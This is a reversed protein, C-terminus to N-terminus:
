RKRDERLNQRGRPSAVVFVMRTLRLSAIFCRQGMQL